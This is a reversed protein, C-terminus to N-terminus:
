SALGGVLNIVTALIITVFVFSTAAHGLVARRMHNRTIDTDSVQFTMAVTFAMYAFDSYRPSATPDDHFNIGGVDAAYYRRTYRVWFMTHVALWSGAIAVIGFVVRAPDPHKTRAGVLVLGIVTVSVLAAALVALDVLPRGIDESTARQRTEDGDLHWVTLWTAAAYTLTGASWALLWALSGTWFFGSVLGVALGTVVGLALHTLGRYRTVLDM